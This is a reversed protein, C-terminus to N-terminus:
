DRPKRMAVFLNIMSFFAAVFIAVGCAILLGKMQKFTREWSVIALLVDQIM